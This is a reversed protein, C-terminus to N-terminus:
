TCCLREEASMGQGVIAEIDAVTKPVGTLVEPGNDTIHLDDEIRIGGFGYWSRAKDIDVIDKFQAVLAADELIAPVVYFGPEVTIIWGAQLPLDMRLYRTGFPEPRPQGIPYSSRDGFNELDHVDMGLHHGIGHPFFLAHAHREMADDVSATILGESCLWETLVRCSADHVVRNRVGVQAAAIGALQSQLVAEYASRQRPTFTGNVPWTRTIDVGYGSALEGGGDLLVMRGATLPDGHHHNHLVEGSQTLITDYGTTLGRAALVGEFLATLSREHGGVQTGRLVADFAAETHKAATRMADLEEPAKTRRMDIVADMLAEDGHQSGFQLPTGTLASVERNISEDAVALTRVSRSGIADALASRPQADTAGYRAGIQALTTSHGHWLADDAAPKPVFLTFNGDELLAAAGPVACGTFYLFTSDQRFSLKNMPLNRSREGNGLLLVPGDVRHNLEHRRPAHHAIDM